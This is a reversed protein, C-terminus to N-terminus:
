SLLGKLYKLGKEALVFDSTETQRWISAAKAIVKNEPTFSEMVVWKNYNIRRLADAISKWHVQGTGAAGRDNESAHFLYLLDGADLVAMASNKEEIGMHFSDLHIKLMKSGVDKVMRIADKCINIFDTEFRNLPEIAIFVGYKQAWQCAKSLNEVVTDWQVKRENEGVMSARGVASYVPGAFVDCDLESCAELCDKIYSLGGEIYEKNPGRIDRNEGFLGCISSCVLDNDKFTKLTKKYDLDGKSGLAVEIGDFGIEKFKTTLSKVHEDTYTGTWLLTNIGFKM